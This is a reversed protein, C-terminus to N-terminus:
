TRIKPPPISLFFKNIANKNYFTLTQYLNKIELYGLINQLSCFSSLCHMREWFFSSHPCKNLIASLQPKCVAQWQSTVSRREVESWKRDCKSWFGFSREYRCSTMLRTGETIWMNGRQASNGWDPISKWWINMYSAGRNTSHIFQNMHLAIYMEFFVDTLIWLIWFKLTYVTTCGEKIKQAWPGSEKHRKKYSTKVVHTKCTQLLFCFFHLHANVSFHLKQRM